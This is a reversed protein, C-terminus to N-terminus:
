RHIFDSLTIANPWMSWARVCSRVSKGRLSHPSPLLLLLSITLPRVSPTLEVNVHPGDLPLLGYQWVFTSLKSAMQAFIPLAIFWYRRDVLNTAHRRHKDTPKNASVKRKQRAIFRYCGIFPSSPRQCSKIPPIVMSNEWPLIEVPNQNLERFQHRIAQWEVLEQFAWGTQTNWRSDDFFERNGGLDPAMVNFALFGVFPSSFIGSFYFPFCYFEEFARAFSFEFVFGFFTLHTQRYFCLWASLSNKSLTPPVVSLLVFCDDMQVVWCEFALRCRSGNPISWHNPRKVAVILSDRKMIIIHEEGSFWIQFCM